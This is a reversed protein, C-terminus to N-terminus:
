AYKRSKKPAYICKLYPLEHFFFYYFKKLSKKQYFENDVIEIIECM